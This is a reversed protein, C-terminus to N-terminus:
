FCKGFEGYLEENLSQMLATDAKQVRRDFTLLGNIEDEVDSLQTYVAACLGNKILPKLEDMYLSKIADSLEKGDTFLKYGFPKESKREGASLSYGGFETLALMRKDAKMKLKKYYIHRSKFDGAGMDHWGSASDILRTPDLERLIGTLRESDFQGWGENFVTYVMLSACNYLLEATDRMDKEFAARGEASKRGFAARNKDSIRIGIFPLAMTVAPKYEAGSNVMDQWVIMGLRDCHYYWRLPEIKIHKRLMNFGMAKMSSIDAIMAEDSPPTYLGDSYYGQDLVGSMFIPENNLAPLLRGNREVTSFKRMGFYSRVVDREATFIVDYLFPDDPSWPSFDDISLELEGTRTSGTMLTQKGYVEVFIEPCGTQEIEFRVKREDFLPTIRVSEIHASYLSELWVTQWIGSTATYWIGGRAYKQKGRAYIESDADDRVVVEILNEGDHLADTIDFRFPLYGGEHTGVSSGNILVECTQDVAGFQLRVIDKKFGDPLSFSRSYRLTEDKKLQTDAGSLASEPSFPVLIDGSRSEAAGGTIEYSWIGNLNLYSDRELQPRPYRHLPADTIAEGWKTLPKHEM